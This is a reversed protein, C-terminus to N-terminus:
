RIGTAVDPDSADPDPEPLLVALADCVAAYASHRSGTTITTGREASVRAVHVGNIEDIEVCYSDM